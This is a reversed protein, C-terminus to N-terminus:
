RPPYPSLNEFVFFRLYFAASTGKGLSRTKALQPRHGWKGPKQLAIRLAVLARFRAAVRTGAVELALQLGLGATFSFTGFRRTCVEVVAIM